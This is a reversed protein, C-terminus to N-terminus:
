AHFRLCWGVVSVRERLRVQATEHEDDAITRIAFAYLTGVDSAASARCARGLLLASLVSIATYGM